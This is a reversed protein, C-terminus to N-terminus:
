SCLMTKIDIEFDQFIMADLLETLM